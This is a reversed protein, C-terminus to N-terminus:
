SKRMKLGRHRQTSCTPRIKRDEMAAETASMTFAACPLASVATAVASTAMAALVAMTPSSVISTPAGKGNRLTKHPKLERCHIKPPSSDKTVPKTKLSRIGSNSTACIPIRLTTAM